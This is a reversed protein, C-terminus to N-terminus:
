SEGCPEGALRIIRVAGALVILAIVSGIVLDPLRSGLLYVLVGAAIVGANVLVDTASFIFSATMHKEGHRHPTILYLCYTNAALAACSVGIMVLSLPESGVAFKHAVEACLALALALQVLGSYLAIRNKVAGSRGVAYLALSYVSADAFMDLGDGVLGMSDALMGALVEVVFMGANVALLVRLTTRQVQEVGADAPLEAEVSSVLQAGLALGNISDVISAADATHCVTLTRAPLDFALSRIASIGALRGRIMAEEAPCDM